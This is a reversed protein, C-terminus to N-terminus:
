FTFLNAKANTNVTDYNLSFKKMLYLVTFSGSRSVGLSCHILVRNENKYKSISKKFEKQLITDRKDFSPEKDMEAQLNLIQNSFPLKEYSSESASNEALKFIHTNCVESLNTQSANSQKSSTSYSTTM